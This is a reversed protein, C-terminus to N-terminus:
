WIINGTPTSTSVRPVNVDTDTYLSRNVHWRAGFHQAVQLRLPSMKTRAILTVAIHHTFHECLFVTLLAVARLFFLRPLMKPGALIIVGMFSSMLTFFKEEKPPGLLTQM